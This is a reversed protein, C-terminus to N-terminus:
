HRHPNRCSCPEQHPSSLKDLLSFTIANFVEECSGGFQRDDSQWFVAYTRNNEAFTLIMATNVLDFCMFDMDFGTLMRGAIMKTVPASELDVYEGSMMKRVSSALEQPSENETVTLMWFAGEPSNLQVTLTGPESPNEEIFWNEPYSFRIGHKKYESPM